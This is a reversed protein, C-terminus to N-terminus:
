EDLPEGDIASLMRFWVRADISQGIFRVAGDCFAANVGGPHNSRANAKCSLDSTSDCGMRMKALHQPGGFVREAVACGTVIDTGPRDDNPGFDDVAANALISAGPYGLVWTGRIDEPVLGIRIEALLITNAAGDRAALRDLSMGWNVATPGQAPLKFIADGSQCPSPVDGVMLECPGANIAYNARGWGGVIGGASGVFNVEFGNDSPCQFVSLRGQRVNTGDPFTAKPNWMFPTNAGREFFDPPNTGYARPARMSVQLTDYLKPAEYWPCTIVSWNPGLSSENNIDVNAFHPSKGIPREESLRAPPLHMNLEHFGHGALVLQKLNNACQNRRASERAYEIGRGALGLGGGIIGVAVLLSTLTFTPGRPTEDSM